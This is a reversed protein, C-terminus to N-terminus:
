MDSARQRRSDGKSRLALHVHRLHVSRVRAHPLAAVQGKGVAPGRRQLYERVLQIVLILGKSDAGPAMCAPARRGARRRGSAQM